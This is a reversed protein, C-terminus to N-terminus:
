MHVYMYVHLIFVFRFPPFNNSVKMNSTKRYYESEALVRSLGVDSLKVCSLGQTSVLVNRFMWYVLLLVFACLFALNFLPKYLIMVGVWKKHGARLIRVFKLNSNIRICQWQPGRFKSHTNLSQWYVM